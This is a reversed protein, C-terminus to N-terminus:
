GLGNINQPQLEKNSWIQAAASGANPLINGSSDFQFSVVQEAPIIGYPAAIITADTNLQFTISGDPVIIGAQNQIRGNTLTIM